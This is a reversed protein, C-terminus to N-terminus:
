GRVLRAEERELGKTNSYAEPDIMPGKKKETWM